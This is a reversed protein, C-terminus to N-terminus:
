QSKKSEQGETNQTSGELRKQERAAKRKKKKGEKTEKTEEPEPAAEPEQGGFLASFPNQDKVVFPRKLSPDKQESIKMILVKFLSCEWLTFPAMVIQIFLPQAIDWKFHIFSCIAVGIVIQTVFKKLEGQDYSCVTMEQPEAPPGSALFSPTPAPPVVVKKQNNENLILYYMFGSLLLLFVQISFFTIRLILQNLPDTLDLQSMLLMAPLIVLM